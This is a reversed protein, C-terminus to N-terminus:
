LFMPLTYLAALLLAVCNTPASVQVVVCKAREARGACRNSRGAISRDRSKEAVASCGANVEGSAKLRCVARQESPRRCLGKCCGRVVSVRDPYCGVGYSSGPTSVSHQPWQLADALAQPSQLGQLVAGPFDSSAQAAASGPLLGAALRRRRRGRCCSCRGAAGVGASGLSYGAHNGGGKVLACPWLPFANDNSSIPRAGALVSSSAQEGDGGM